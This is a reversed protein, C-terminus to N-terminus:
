NPTATVATIVPPYDPSNPNQSEWEVNEPTYFSYWGGPYSESNQEQCNRMTGSITDGLSFEAIQYNRKASSSVMFFVACSKYPLYRCCGPGCEVPDQNNKINEMLQLCDEVLVPKQDSKYCGKMYYGTKTLDIPPELSRETINRQGEIESLESSGSPLFGYGSSIAGFVVSFFFYTYSRKM